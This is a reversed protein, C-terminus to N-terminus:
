PDTEVKSQEDKRKDQSTEWDKCSFFMGWLMISVGGHKVTPITSPKRLAHCKANLGVLEMKTENYWLITNRLTQCDMLNRKAFELCATM